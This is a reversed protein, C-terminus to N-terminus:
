VKYLSEGGQRPQTVFKNLHPFELNDRFNMFL